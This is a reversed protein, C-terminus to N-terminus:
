PRTLDSYEILPNQGTSAVSGSVFSGGHVFVM